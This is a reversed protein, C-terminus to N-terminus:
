AQSLKHEPRYIIKRAAELLQGHVELILKIHNEEQWGNVKLALSNILRNVQAHTAINPDLMLQASLILPIIRTKDYNINAEPDTTALLDSMITRFQTQWESLQQYNFESSLQKHLRENESRVTVRTILWQIIGAIFIGGIGILATTTEITM